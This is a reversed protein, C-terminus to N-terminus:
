GGGTSNADIARASRWPLPSHHTPITTRTIPSPGNTIWVCPSSRDRVLVDDVLSVSPGIALAGNGMEEILGFTSHLNAANPKGIPMGRPM